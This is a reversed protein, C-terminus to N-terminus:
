VESSRAPRSAREIQSAYHITPRPLGQRGKGGHAELRTRIAAYLKENRHPDILKDLDKLKLSTLPVKQTVGGQAKLREPQAYVPTRTRRAM